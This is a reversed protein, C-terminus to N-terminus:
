EAATTLPLLQRDTSPRGTVMTPECSRRQARTTLPLGDSHVASQRSPSNVARAITDSRAGMTM